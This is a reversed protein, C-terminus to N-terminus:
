LITDMFIQPQVLAHTLYGVIRTLIISNLYHIPMADCMGSLPASTDEGPLLSEEMVRTTDMTTVEGKSQLYKSGTVMLLPIYIQELPRQATM